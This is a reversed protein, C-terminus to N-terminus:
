ASVARLRVTSPCICQANTFALRTGATYLEVHHCSQALSSLRERFSYVPGIVTNSYRDSSTAVDVLSFLRVWRDEALQRCYTALCDMSDTLTLTVGSSEVVYPPFDAEAARTADDDDENDHGNGLRAERQMCSAIAAKDDAPVMVVCTCAFKRARRPSKLYCTASTSPDYRVLLSVSPLDLPVDPM